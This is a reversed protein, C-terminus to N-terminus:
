DNTGIGLYLNWQTDLGGVNSPPMMQRYYADPTGFVGDVDVLMMGEDPLADYPLYAVFSVPGEVVGSEEGQMLNNGTPRVYQLSGLGVWHLEDSEVIQPTGNVLTTSASREVLKVNNTMFGEQSQAVAVKLMNMFNQM